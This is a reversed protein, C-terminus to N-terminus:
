FNSAAVSKPTEAPLFTTLGLIEVTPLTMILTNSGMILINVTKIWGLLKKDDLLNDLASFAAM